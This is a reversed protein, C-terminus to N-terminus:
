SGGSRLRRTVAAGAGALVLLAALASLALFALPPRSEGQAPPTPLALGTAPAAAEPTVESARQEGEAPPTPRSPSIGLTIQDLADVAAEEFSGYNPTGTAKWRGMADYIDGPAHEGDIVGDARYDIIVDNPNAAASPVMIFLSALIAVVLTGLTMKGGRARIEVCPVTTAADTPSLLTSQYCDSLAM